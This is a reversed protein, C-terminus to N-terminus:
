TSRSSNSSTEFVCPVAYALLRKKRPTGRTELDGLTDPAPTAAARLLNAYATARAYTALNDFNAMDFEAPPLAAFRDRYPLLREHAAIGMVVATAFDANM